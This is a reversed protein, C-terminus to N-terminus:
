RGPPYTVQVTLSGPSVTLPIQNDPPGMLSTSVTVTVSQGSALSGSAPSVSLGDADAPPVSISFATGGGPATLTFSGSYVPLIGQPQLTISPPSAALRAPRPKPAARTTSGGAPSAGPSSPSATARRTHRARAARRHRSVSPSASVSVPPPAVASPQSAPGGPEDEGRGAALHRAPFATTMGVVLLAVAAAVGTAALAAARGPRRGRAPGAPVPFGDQGYRGARSVTDRYGIGEPTQDALLSLVRERLVPPLVVLPLASLLLAPTLERPKRRGCVACRRAHRSIRKRLLGTFEGDWDQLMQGLGPCADRGYTAVLLAGLSRELKRRARSQLAHAQSTSVGLVAALDGGALDHRLNLEIIERSAPGLGAVAARVLERPEGQSAGAFADPLAQGTLEGDEDEDPGSMRSRARLRRYCKNRAVAYLWPRLRDQDRLGALRSDAIVFTDQVVDAADAPEALLSRCYTHLAQAYRDYAAAPGEPDGAVVAAAIEIDRM